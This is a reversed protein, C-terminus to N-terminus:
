KIFRKLRNIGGNKPIDYLELEREKIEEYGVQVQEKQGLYQKGLWICLAANTDALKFQKRRISIKGIEHGKAIVTAFRRSITSKDVDFFAGIEEHTCMMQALKLVQDPDIKKKPRAM